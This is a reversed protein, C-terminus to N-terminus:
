CCDIDLHLDNYLSFYRFSRIKLQKLFNLFWFLEISSRFNIDPSRIKERIVDSGTFLFSSKRNLPIKKRCRSSFIKKARCKHPRPSVNMLEKNLFSIFCKPSTLRNRGVCKLHHKNNLTLIRLGITKKATTSYDDRNVLDGIGVTM